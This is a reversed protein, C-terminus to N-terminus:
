RWEGTRYIGFAILMVSLSPPHPSSFAFAQKNLNYAIFLEVSALRKLSEVRRQHNEWAQPTAPLM